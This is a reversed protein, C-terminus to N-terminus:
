RRAAAPLIVAIGGSEEDKAATARAFVFLQEPTTIRCSAGSTKTCFRERAPEDADEESIPIVLYAGEAIRRALGYEFPGGRRSARSQIILDRGEYAHISFETFDSSSGRPLYRAGVWDFTATSHKRAGDKAPTFLHVQIRDGLIAKPDDLIPTTSTVCGALACTALALLARAGPKVTPWFINKLSILLM